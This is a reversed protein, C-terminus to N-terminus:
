FFIFINNVLWPRDTNPFVTGETKHIWSRPCLKEWYPCVKAPSYCVCIYIYIYIKQDYATTKVSRVIDSAPNSYIIKASSARKAEAYYHYAIEYKKM